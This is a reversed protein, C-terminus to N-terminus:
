LLCYIYIVKESVLLKQCPTLPIADSVKIGLECEVANLNIKSPVSKPAYGWVFMLGFSKHLINILSLLNFVDM